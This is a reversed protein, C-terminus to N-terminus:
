VQVGLFRQLSSNLLGPNDGDVLALRRAIAAQENIETLASELEFYVDREQVTNQFQMRAISSEQLIQTLDQTSSDFSRPAGFIRFYGAAGGPIPDLNDLDIVKKSSEHRVSAAFLEDRLAPLDRNSLEIPQNM